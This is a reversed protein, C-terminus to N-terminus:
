QVVEISWGGMDAAGTEWPREVDPYMEAFDTKLRGLAKDYLNFVTDLVPGLQELGLNADLAGMSSILLSM